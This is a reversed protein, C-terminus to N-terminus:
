QWTPQFWRIVLSAIRTQKNGKMRSKASRKLKVAEQVIQMKANM